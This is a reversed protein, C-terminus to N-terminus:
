TPPAYKALKSRLYRVYDPALPTVIVEEVVPLFYALSRVPALPPADEARLTRRAAALILASEVVSPPIKRRYLEAAVVRDHSRVRGLTGPTCRYWDLVRCVYEQQNLTVDDHHTPPEACMM